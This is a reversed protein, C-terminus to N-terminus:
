LECWLMSLECLDGYLERITTAQNTPTTAEIEQLSSTKIHVQDEMMVPQLISFSFSM